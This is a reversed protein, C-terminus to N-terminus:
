GLEGSRLRRVGPEGRTVERLLASAVQRAPIPRVSRPLWGLLRAGWVEGPRVPQGLKERDGLLLSPQ